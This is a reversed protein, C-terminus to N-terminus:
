ADTEAAGACADCAEVRRQEGCGREVVQDRCWERQRSGSRDCREACGNCEGPAGLRKGRESEEARHEDRNRNRQLVADGRRARGEGTQHERSRTDDCHPAAPM